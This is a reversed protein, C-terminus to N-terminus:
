KLLAKLSWGLVHHISHAFSVQREANVKCASAFEHPLRCSEFGSNANSAHQYRRRKRLSSRLSTVSFVSEIVKGFHLERSVATESVHSLVLDVNIPNQSDAYHIILSLLQLKQRLHMSRFACIVSM